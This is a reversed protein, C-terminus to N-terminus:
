SRTKFFKTDIVWILVNCVIILIPYPSYGVRYLYEVCMGITFGNLYRMWDKM